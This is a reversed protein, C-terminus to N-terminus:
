TLFMEIDLFSKINKDNIQLIKRNIFDQTKIDYM